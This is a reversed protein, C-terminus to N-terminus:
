SANELKFGLKKTSIIQSVYSWASSAAVYIGSLVMILKETDMEEPIWGAAVAITVTVSLWIRVMTNIQDLKKVAEANKTETGLEMGPIAGAVTVKATEVTGSFSSIISM